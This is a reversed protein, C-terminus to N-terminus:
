HVTEGGRQSAALYAELKDFSQAWGEPAGNREAVDRPIGQVM